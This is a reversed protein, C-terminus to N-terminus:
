CDSCFCYLKGNNFNVNSYGTTWTNDLFIANAAMNAGSVAIDHAVTENTYDVMNDVARNSISGFNQTAILFILSFGIVLLLAAKGGM